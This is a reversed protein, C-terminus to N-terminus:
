QVPGYRCDSLKRNLRANEDELAIAYATSAACTNSLEEICQSFAKERSQDATSEKEMYRRGLFFISTGVVVTIIIDGIKVSMAKSRGPATSGNM